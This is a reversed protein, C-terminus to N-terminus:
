QEDSDLRQNSQSELDEGLLGVLLHVDVRGDSTPIVTTKIQLPRIVENGEEDWTILTNLSPKGEIHTM